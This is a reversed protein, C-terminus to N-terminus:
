AVKRISRRVSFALLGAAGILGYTSPEPVAVSTFTLSPSSGTLDLTFYGQYTFPKGGSLSSNAASWLDEYLVTSSSVSSDPNFGTVGYFSSPSFTPEVQSEWTKSGDLVNTGAAPANITSLKSVALNITARTITSAISSGATAPSGAGGSRLQTLYVDASNNQYGGVVGGFMSSSSGLVMNFNTLSFQASLDIVSSGGILGSAQGLDIIYDETGGGAQNQFGLYLDNAVFTSTQALGSQSVVAIGAAVITAKMLNKM